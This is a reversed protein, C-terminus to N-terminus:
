EKSRRKCRTKKVTTATCRQDDPMPEGNVMRHHIGCLTESSACCKNKCPNGKLTTAQCKLPIRKLYEIFDIHGICEAIKIMLKKAQVGDQSSALYKELAEAIDM